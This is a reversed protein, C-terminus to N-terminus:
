EDDIEKVMEPTIGLKMYAESQAAVREIVTGLPTLEGDPFPGMGYHIKAVEKKSIFSDPKTEAPQVIRKNDLLDKNQVKLDIIESELKTIQEELRSVKRELYEIVNEPNDYYTSM